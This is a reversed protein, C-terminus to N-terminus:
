LNKITIFPSVQNLVLLWKSYSASLSVAVSFSYEEDVEAFKPLSGVNQVDESMLLMNECDFVEWSHAFM